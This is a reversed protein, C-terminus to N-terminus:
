PQAAGIEWDTDKRLGDLVDDRLQMLALTERDVIYCCGHQGGYGDPNAVRMQNLHFASPQLTSDEVHCKDASWSGVLAM